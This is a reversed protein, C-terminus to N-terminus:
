FWSKRKSHPIVDTPNPQVPELIDLSAHLQTQAQNQQNEKELEKKKLKKAKGKIIGRPAKSIGDHINGVATGKGIGNHVGKIVGRFGGYEKQSVQFKVGEDEVLDRVGKKVLKRMRPSSFDICKELWQTRKAKEFDTVIGKIPLWYAESQRIMALGRLSMDLKVADPDSGSPRGRIGCILFIAEELMEAIDIEPKELGGDALAQYGAKYFEITEFADRLSSRYAVPQNDKHGPISLFLYLTEWTIPSQLSDNIHGMLNPRLEPQRILTLFEPRTITIQPAHFADTRPYGLNKYVLSVIEYRIQAHRFRELWRLTETARKESTALHVTYDHEDVNWEGTRLEDDLEETTSGVTSELEPKSDLTHLRNRGQYSRVLTNRSDSVGLTAAPSLIPCNTNFRQLPHSLFGRPNFIRRM